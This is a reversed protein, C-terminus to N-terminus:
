LFSASVAMPNRYDILTSSPIDSTRQPGSSARPPLRKSQLPLRRSRRRRRRAEVEAEADEVDAVGSHPRRAISSIPIPPFIPLLLRPQQLLQLRRRMRRPMEVAADEVDQLAAALPEAVQEVLVVGRRVREV